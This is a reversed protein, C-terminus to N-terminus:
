RKLDYPVNRGESKISDPNNPQFKHILVTDANTPTGEMTDHDLIRGNPKCSAFFLASALLIVCCRFVKM